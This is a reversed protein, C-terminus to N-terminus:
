IGTDASHFHDFDLTMAHVDDLILFGLNEYFPRNHLATFLGVMRLKLILCRALLRAVIESGIGLDHFDPHVVVDWLTGYCIGDSILRGFGVLKQDAAFVAIVEISGRIAREMSGPSRGMMGASSLLQSVDDLNISGPNSIFRLESPPGSTNLDPGGDAKAEKAPSDAQKAYISSHGKSRCTCFRAIDNCGCHDSSGIMEQLYARSGKGLEKSTQCATITARM